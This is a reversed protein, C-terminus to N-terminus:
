QRDQTTITFGQVEDALVADLGDTAHRSLSTLGGQGQAAATLPPAPLLSAAAAAPLRRAVTPACCWRASSGSASLLSSGQQRCRRRAAWQSAAAHGALAPRGRSAPRRRSGTLAAAAQVPQEQPLPLQGAMGQQTYWVKPVHPSVAAASDTAAQSRGEDAKM